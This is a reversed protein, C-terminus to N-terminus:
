DIVPPAVGLHDSWLSRYFGLQHAWDFTM